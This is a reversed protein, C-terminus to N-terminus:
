YPEPSTLGDKGPSPPTVEAIKQGAEVTRLWNKEAYDVRDWDDVIWHGKGPESILSTATGDAGREAKEGKAVRVLRMYGTDPNMLSEIAERQLGASVRAKKLANTVMEPTVQQGGNIPPLVVGWAQMKDPDLWVYAAADFKTEPDWRLTRLRGLVESRLRPMCRPEYTVEPSIDRDIHVEPRVGAIRCMQVLPSSSQQAAEAMREKVSSTREPQSGVHEFFEVNEKPAEGREPRHASAGRREAPM